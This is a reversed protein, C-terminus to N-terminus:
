NLGWDDPDFKSLAWQMIDLSEDLVSKDKLQLVPVTGKPSIKLLTDPKNSLKVERHELLIKSYHLTMRARIAYPCRRFSYLIPISSTM